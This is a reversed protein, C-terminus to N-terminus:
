PPTPYSVNAGHLLVAREVRMPRPLVWDAGTLEDMNAGPGLTYEQQGAVLLFRYPNITYISLLDAQMSDLLGGMAEQTIEMDGDSPTENAAVANILRLSGTYLERLTTM